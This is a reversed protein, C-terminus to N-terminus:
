RGHHKREDLVKMARQYTKGRLKMCHFVVIGNRTYTLVELFKGSATTGIFLDPDSMGDVRSTDFRDIRYLYNTLVEYIEGDTIGHKRASPTIIVEM